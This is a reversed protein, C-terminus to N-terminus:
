GHYIEKNSNPTITFIAELEDEYTFACLFADDESPVDRITLIKDGDKVIM